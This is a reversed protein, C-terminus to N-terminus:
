GKDYTTQQPMIATLTFPTPTKVRFALQNQYDYNSEVQIRGIIGTFLGESGFFDDTESVDVPTMNNFDTGIDFDFSRDVMVATENIRRNKGISTGDAAGGELRLQQIRMEYPLGFQVKGSAQSLTIAGSTVVADSLVQGDGLVSVTEGELWTIGSITTILKRFVGGSVYATLLTSDIGDLSFSDNDIKTIQFSIDNISDTGVNNKLGVVNQFKVHNGTSLGHATSSIVAPNASSIGTVTKPNDFTAGSDSMEADEFDDFEEFIKALYEVYRVKAGDVYRVVSVWVDEETGDPSPIVAFSEIVPPDGASNGVGGFIHRSWGTRLVDLNRDFTMALFTGDARGCWMIPQPSSQFVLNTSIGIDPLNHAIETLDVKRFGDINYYYTLEFIKRTSLSLFITSKGCYVPLLDASGVNDVRKVSVNTATIAVNLSSARMVFTGGSTGIPMGYEDSILWNIRNADNSNITFSVADSDTVAATTNSTGDVNLLASPAFNLYDSVVSGDLRQPAAGAGAFYLRDDHFTACSPWGDSSAANWLGLQFLPTDGTNGFDTTQCNVIVTAGNTYAGIRGWGWATASFKIRIMRQAAPNLFVADTSFFPAPCIQGSGVYTANFTSGILDYTTATIQSVVWSGNAGTTGVAGSIFVRSRDAFENGDALTIRCVGSGNDNIDSVVYAAYDGSKTTVTFENDLGVATVNVTCKHVSSTVRCIRPDLGEDMYPGDNLALEGIVWDLAGYRKLTVIPTQPHTIYLVDLSQVFKLQSLATSPYGTAIEYATGPSTQLQERDTYFRIYNDGFELTYSQTTSYRFPVLITTNATDKTAAVFQSGSRRLVPGQLTPIANLCTGLGSKYREVDIRGQMLPSFEGSNFNSQILSARPM